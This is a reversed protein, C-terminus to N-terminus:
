TGREHWVPPILRQSLDQALPDHPALWPALLAVALIFLVVGAGIAFTTHGLVRGRMQRVRSPQLIEDAGVLTDIAV